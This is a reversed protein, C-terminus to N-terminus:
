PAGTILLAWTGPGVIGDAHMGHAHQVHKVAAETAPGFLGDVTVPAGAVALLSQARRTAMHHSLATRSLTPLGHVLTVLWDPPPPPPPPPTLNPLVLARLEAPTGRYASCDVLGTVGAVVGSSTFQLLSAPLGGYGDWWSAPVGPYLARPTSTGTLYHSPWLWDCFTTDAGDWYWQPIYGGVPHRPYLKRLETVCAIGDALSPRSSGGPWPEIDVALAFGALDGAHQAFWDAQAAGNGQELFLYAGPVFGSAKARAAMASAALPWNPNVYGRGQSVKEFGFGTSADVTAWDVDHQASSADIGYMVM